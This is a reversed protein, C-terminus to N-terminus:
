NLQSYFLKRVRTKEKEKWKKTHFLEKLSLVSEITCFYDYKRQSINCLQCAFFDAEKERIKEKPMLNSINMCYVHGIEHALGLLAYPKYVNYYQLYFNNGFWLVCPARRLNTYVLPTYAYKINYEVRAINEL